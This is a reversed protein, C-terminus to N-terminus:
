TTLEKYHKLNFNHETQELTLLQDTDILFYNYELYDKGDTAVPDDWTLDLHKWNNNIYVANWIHNESSVKFSKINMRELFLEMLDTYGGCLAYGEFLPGYATDSKYSTVGKDSRNSDYKSNNIIYDHVNKINNELSNTAEELNKNKIVTNTYPQNDIKQKKLSKLNSYNNQYINQNIANIGM